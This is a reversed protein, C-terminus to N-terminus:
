TPSSLVRVVEQGLADTCRARAAANGIHGEYDVFDDKTLRAADTARLLSGDLSEAFTELDARYRSYFRSGAEESWWRPNFPSELVIVNVDGAERLRAVTRRLVAFNVEANRGYNAELDPVRSMEGAWYEPTNVTEHWPADLPEGYTWGGSILNMLFTKRRALIFQANDIAHIGTRTPVKIGERRAEADLIESTFCLKPNAIIYKLSGQGDSEAGHSLIGPSLGLVLVGGDGPPMRETIAAIEWSNQLDSSFDHAPMQQGLSASVLGSLREESEVCNVVLSTGFVVIAPGPSNERALVKHTVYVSRDLQGTMQYRYFESGTFWPGFVVIYALFATAVTGILVGASTVSPRTLGEIFASLRASGRGNEDPGPVPSNFM